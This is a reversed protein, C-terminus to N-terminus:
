PNMKFAPSFSVLTESELENEVALDTDAPKVCQETKNLPETQNQLDSKEQKSSSVLEDQFPCYKLVSYFLSM